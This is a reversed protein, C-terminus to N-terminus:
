VWSQFIYLYTMIGWFIMFWTVALGADIRLSKREAQVDRMWRFEVVVLLPLIFSSPLVWHVMYAGIRGTLTMVSPPRRFANIAFWLLTGLTITRFLLHAFRYYATRRVLAESLDGGKGIQQTLSEHQLVENRERYFQEM